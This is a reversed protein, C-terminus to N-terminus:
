GLDFDITHGMEARAHSSDVIPNDEDGEGGGSIGNNGAYGMLLSMVELPFDRLDYGLGGKSIWSWAIYEPGASSAM